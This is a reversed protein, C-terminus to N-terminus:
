YQLIVKVFLHREASSALNDGTGVLAEGQVTLLLARFVKAGVAFGVWPAMKM